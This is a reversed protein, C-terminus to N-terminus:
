WRAARNAPTACQGESGQGWFYQINSCLSQGLKMFYKNFFYKNNLIRLSVASRQNYINRTKKRDYISWAEGRCKQAATKPKEVLKNSPKCIDRAMMKFGPRSPIWHELVLESRAEDLVQQVTNPTPITSYRNCINRRKEIMIESINLNRSQDLKMLNNPLPTGKQRRAVRLDGECEWRQNRGLSPRKNIISFLRHAGAIELRWKRGVDTRVYHAGEGLEEHRWCLWILRKIQYASCVIRKFDQGWLHELKQKARAEKSLRQGEVQAAAKNIEPCIRWGARSKAKAEFVISSWNPNSSRRNSKSNYFHESMKNRIQLHQLKGKMWSKGRFHDLKELDGKSICITYASQQKRASIWVARLWNQVWFYGLKFNASHIKIQLSNQSRAVYKGVNWVARWDVRAKLIKLSRSQDLKKLDGKFKLGYQRKTAKQNSGPSLSIWAEAKISSGRTSTSNYDSRDHSLRLKTRAGDLVQLSTTFLDPRCLIELDLIKWNQHMHKNM